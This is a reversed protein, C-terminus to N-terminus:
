VFIDMEIRVNRIMKIKKIEPIIPIKINVIEVAVPINQIFSPVRLVFM